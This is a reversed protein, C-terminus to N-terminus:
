SIAQTIKSITRRRPYFLPQWKIKRFSGTTAAAIQPGYALTFSTNSTVSGITFDIGSVQQGGAVNILRVVDGNVLGTTDTLSVVPTAANSIATITSNLATNPNGSTNVLTFGGTTAYSSLNAAAAANSKKYEWMAGDPFGRQWYYEVGIATTQNAAAVTTNYVKFWDVDSRLQITKATGDSTFRGQLIITNDM